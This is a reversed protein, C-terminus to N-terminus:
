RVDFGGERMRRLRGADYRRSEHGADRRKVWFASLTDPTGREEVAALVADVAELSHTTALIQVQSTAAAELLYSLVQRLASPHIGAELEDVLVVGHSARTLALALAAARRMGDGFSALDVVGRVRHTVRVSDLGSNFAVVDLDQVNPDFLRLLEVALQKKGDAAVHSLHEVLVRTSYHTAPTVTYVRYVLVQHSPVPGPIRLLIPAAGDVNVDISTTAEAVGAETVRWSVSPRAM